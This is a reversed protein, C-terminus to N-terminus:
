KDYCIALALAVPLDHSRFDPDAPLPHQTSIGTEYANIGKDPLFFIPRCGNLRCVSRKEPPGFVIGPGKPKAAPGQIGYLGCFRDIGRIGFTDLAQDCWNYIRHLHHDAEFTNYATRNYCPDRGM